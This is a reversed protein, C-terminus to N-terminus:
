GLDPTPLTGCGVPECVYWSTVECMNLVATGPSVGDTLDALTDM